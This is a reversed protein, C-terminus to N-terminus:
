KERKLASEIADSNSNVKFSFIYWKGLRKLLSYNFLLLNGSTDEILYTKKLFMDGTKATDIPNVAFVKEKDLWQVLITDVQDAVSMIKEYGPLVNKETAASLCRSSKSLKLICNTIETEFGDLSSIPEGAIALSSLFVLLCSVAINKM